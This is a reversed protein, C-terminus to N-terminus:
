LRLRSFGANNGANTSTPAHLPAVRLVFTNTSYARRMCSVSHGYCAQDTLLEGDIDGNKVLFNAIWFM